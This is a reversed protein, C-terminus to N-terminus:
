WWRSEGLSHRGLVLRRLSHSGVGHRYDHRGRRLTAPPPRADPRVTTREAPALIHWVVLFLVLLVILGLCGVGCGVAWWHWQRPGERPSAAGPPEDPNAM